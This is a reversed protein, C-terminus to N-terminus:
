KHGCVSKPECSLGLRKISEHIHITITSPDTPFSAYSFTYTLMIKQNPALTVTNPGQIGPPSVCYCALAPTYAAFGISLSAIALMLAAVYRSSIM